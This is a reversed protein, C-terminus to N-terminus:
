REWMLTISKRNDIYRIDIDVFNHTEITVYADGGSDHGSCHNMTKLGVKNMEKLLPIFEEDAEFTEGDIAIEKMCMNYRFLKCFGEKKALINL